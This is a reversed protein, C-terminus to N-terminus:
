CDTDTTDTKGFPRWERVRTVRQAFLRGEESVWCRVAITNGIGQGPGVLIGLHQHERWRKASFAVDASGSEDTLTLLVRITPEGPAPLERGYKKAQAVLDVAQRFTVRGFLMVERAGLAVNRLSERISQVGIQERVAREADTLPAFPYWPALSPLVDPNIEGNALGLAMLPERVTKPMAALLDTWGLYFPERILRATTVPGCKKLSQFGGLIEGPEGASFDGRSRAPDLLTVRGGREVYERLLAFRKEDTDMSGVNRCLAATFVDPYHVKLYGTWAGVYAYQVAHAEPFLYNAAKHLQRYVEEIEEISVGREFWGTALRERYEELADAGGIKSVLKRIKQVDEIPFGAAAALAMAQEQYLVIGRTRDLAAGLASHLTPTEEHGHKRAVFHKVSGSQLPGPRALASVATFEEFTEPRLQRMIRGAANGQLQFLGQNHGKALMAFVDSDELPLNYLWDLDKGIEKVTEAVATLTKSGLCDIKLLGLAAAEDKSLSAVRDGLVWEKGEKVPRQMIATVEHIPRSAVLFGGAHVSTNRVQGELRAAIELAPYRQLLKKATENTAFLRQLVGIDHLGADADEAEPVLAAAAAIIEAPIELVKGADVLAMRAGFTVINVVHACNEAGYRGELYAFAEHRRDHQFDIDVDLDRKSTDCFREFPLNHKIPDVVTVDLAWLVLSGGASGRPVVLIDRKRMERVLDWVVLLYEELGLKCVTDLERELRDEYEGANYESPIELLNNVGFRQLLGMRSEYRLKSAPSYGEPVVFKPGGASPLEVECQEAITASREVIEVLELESVGPLCSKLRKLVENGDCRYHMEPLKIKRKADHLKQGTNACLLTDQVVYDEPRTFHSDDTAVMPLNLERAMKWLVPLARESIDLGKCPVLEVYFSELHEAYWGLWQFADEERDANILQSLHGIVCGSLVTLGKQHRALLNADLLPKRYFNRYSETVLKLLNGYGEQTHALLTLHAYEMAKREGKKREGEGAREIKTVDAVQYAEVGFIPKVGAARMAKDFAFHGCTNGHDTIACATQGLEVCRAALEVPVSQGDLASYTTHVHLGIYALESM